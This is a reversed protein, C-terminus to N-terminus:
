PAEARVKNRLLLWALGIGMAVDISGCFMPWWQPMGPNTIVHGHVADFLGHGALGAAVIWLNRKFGIVTAAFFLAAVASEAILAETSGGMIAFLGYYTAVVALVTPYFARDRDLGVVRAFVFVFLGLGVGILYAMTM